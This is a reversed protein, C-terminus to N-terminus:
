HHCSASVRTLGAGSPSLNTSHTDGSHRTDHDGSGRWDNNSWSGSRNWCHHSWSWSNNWSWSWSWGAAAESIQEAAAVNHPDVSRVEVNFILCTKLIINTL